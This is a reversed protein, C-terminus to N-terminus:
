RKAESNVNSLLWEVEDAEFMRQSTSKPNLVLITSNKELVNLWDYGLMTIVHKEEQYFEGIREKTDFMYIFKNGEHEYVELQLNDEKETIHEGEQHNESVGPIHIESNLFVEYFYAANEEPNSEELKVAKQLETETM